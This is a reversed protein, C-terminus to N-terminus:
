STTITKVVGNEKVKLKHETEDYWFTGNPRANENADNAIENIDATTRSPAVWGDDSLTDQMQQNLVDHYLQQDATYHGEDTAVKGGTFTPIKMPLYESLWEYGEM